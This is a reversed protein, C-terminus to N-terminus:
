LLRMFLDNARGREREGERGREEAFDLTLQIITRGNETCLYNKSISCLLKIATFTLIKVM